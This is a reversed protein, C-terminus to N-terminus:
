FSLFRWADPEGEFSSTEEFGSVGLCMGSFCLLLEFLLQFGMHHCLLILFFRGGPGQQQSDFGVLFLLMRLQPSFNHLTPPLKHDLWEHSHESHVKELLLPLLLFCCLVRPGGLCVRVALCSQLLLLLGHPVLLAPFSAVLELSLGSFCFSGGHGNRWIFSHNCLM